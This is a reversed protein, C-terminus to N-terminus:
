KQQAEYASILEGLTEYYWVGTDPNYVMWALGRLRTNPDASWFAAKGEDDTQPREIPMNGSGDRQRKIWVHRQFVNFRYTHGDHNIYLTALPEDGPPPDNRRNGNLASMSQGKLISKM